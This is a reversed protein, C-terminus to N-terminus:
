LAHYGTRGSINNVGQTSTTTFSINVNRKTENSLLSFGWRQPSTKKSIKIELLPFLCTDGACVIVVSHVVSFHISVRTCLLCVGFVSPLLVFLHDFICVPPLRGLIPALHLKLLLPLLLGFVCSRNFLLRCTERSNLNMINLKDM